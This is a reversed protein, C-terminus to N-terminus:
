ETSTRFAVHEFGAAQCAAYVRVLDRYPVEAGPWVVAMTGPALGTRADALLKVLADGLDDASSGRVNVTTAGGASKVRVDLPAPRARVEDKKPFTFPHSGAARTEIRGSAYRSMTLDILVHEVVGYPVAEDARLSFTAADDPTEGRRARLAERLQPQGVREGDVLIVAEGDPAASIDVVVGAAAAAAGDLVKLKVNRIQVHGGGRSLEQFGIRGKRPRAKLPEGRRLPRDIEDLNVDIVVEGNLTVQVRPGHCKIHYANWDEPKFPTARPTIAQYLAGTLEDAGVVNDGHYRPDCMQLELGDFAPDGKAPFRLGCGSNGQPPLKFEFALEFDGYEQESVLWTGRPESGHLVGQGDVRWAAGDPAPNAVDDWARVTWGKPVGPEAFLPTFGDTAAAPKDEAPLRSTGAFVVAVGILTRLRM